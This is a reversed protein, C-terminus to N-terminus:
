ALRGRNTEDASQYAALQQELALTTDILQSRWAVIYAAARGAMVGAQNAMNVSVADAGPPPFYAQDVLPMSATLDQVVSRLTRICEEAREPDITFVGGGGLPGPAAMVELM